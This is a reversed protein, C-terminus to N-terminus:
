KSGRSKFTLLVLALDDRTVLGLGAAAAAFFLVCIPIALLSTGGPVALFVWITVAGAAIARVSDIAIGRGIAARLMTVMAVVMVVEGIAMAAMIGIGGNGFRQQCYGTLYYGCATTVVIAATKLVALRGAQNLAFVAAGLYIDVYLLLLPAAFVKLIDGAGSFTQAGYIIAVVADAFLYTGVAGLVGIFLLPKFAAHMVRMLEPPDDAVKSLRPYMGTGLIAAPAVLTGGITWAAAFWGMVENSTLLHLINANLYPQVAVTIGMALMPAGGRLLEYSVSKSVRLPPLRLRRYLMAGVALTVVGNLISSLVLGVVGGGLVLVVLTFLLGSFKIVVNIIADYDMRECGRFVPSFSMAQYGPLWTLLIVASLVITLRDYGLLWTSAVVPVCALLAMVARVAMVSGALEGAREPQRAVERTVYPTHGWDNFVYAFTAISILLYLLGYESPGLTRGVAANAVIALVTTAAQGITLHIINRALGGRAPTASRASHRDPEVTVGPESMPEVAGPVSM